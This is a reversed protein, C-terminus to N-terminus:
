FYSVAAVFAVAAFGMSSAGNFLSGAAGSTTSTKTSTSTTHSTSSERSSTLSTSTTAATSTTDASSQANAAIAFLGAASALTSYFQM